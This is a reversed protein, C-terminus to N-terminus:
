LFLTLAIEDGAHFRRAPELLMFHRGGPEFALCEGPGIAVSDLRKMTVANDTEVTMHMQVAGFHEGAAGSVTVAAEADNCLRAYAALVGAVPPAERVWANEVRLPPETAPAGQLLAALAILSSIPM